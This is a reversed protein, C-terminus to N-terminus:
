LLQDFELVTGDPDRIFLAIRRTGIALPGETIEIGEQQLWEALASLDNVIFAPHTIGPLKIADDLLVNHRGPQTAGNFILNIRVGSPLEMENAQENLFYATQKFGLREYFPISIERNSVRIGIHDIQTIQFVLPTKSSIKNM